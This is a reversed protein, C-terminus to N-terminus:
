KEMLVRDKLKLDYEELTELIEGDEDVVYYEKFSPTNKSVLSADMTGDKKQGYIVLYGEKVNCSLVGWDTKLEFVENNILNLKDGFSEMIYSPMDEELPLANYIKPIDYFVGNEERTTEKWNTKNWVNMKGSDLKEFAIVSGLPVKEIGEICDLILKDDEVKIVESLYDPIDKEDNIRVCNKIGPKKMINILEENM